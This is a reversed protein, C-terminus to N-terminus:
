LGYWTIGGVYVYMTPPIKIKRKTDKCGSHFCFLRFLARLTGLLV